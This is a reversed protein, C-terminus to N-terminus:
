SACPTTRVWFLGLFAASTLYWESHLAFLFIAFLLSYRIAEKGYEIYRCDYYGENKIREHLAQYKLTIARQTKADLSPYEGINDDIEQQMVKATYQERTQARDSSPTAVDDATSVVGARRRSVLNAYATSGARKRQVVAAACSDEEKESDVLLELSTASSNLSALRSSLSSADTDDVESDSEQDAYKRFVGGRIPPTFNVWPGKIHGIKYAAVQRLTQASHYSFCLEKTLM